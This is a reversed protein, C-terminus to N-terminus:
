GMADWAGGGTYSPAGGMADWAVGATTQPGVHAEVLTLTWQRGVVGTCTGDYCFEDWGCTSHEVCAEGSQAQAEDAISMLGLLLLISICQRM